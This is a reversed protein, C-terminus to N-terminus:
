ACWTARCAISWRYPVGIFPFFGRAKPGQRESAPRPASARWRMASKWKCRLRRRGRAQDIYWDAAQKADAIAEESLHINM